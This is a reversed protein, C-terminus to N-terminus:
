KNYYYSLKKIIIIFILKYKISHYILKYIVYMLAYTYIYDVTCVDVYTISIMCVYM